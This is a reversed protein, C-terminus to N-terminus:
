RWTVDIMRRPKREAAAIQAFTRLSLALRRHTATRRRIDDVPRKNLGNIAALSSLLWHEAWCFSVLEACMRRAPSANENALDSIILQTKAFLANAQDPTNAFEQVAISLRAMRAIDFAFEQATWQPHDRVLRKLTDIATEDGRRISKVLARFQKRFQGRGIPDSNVLAPIMRKRWPHRDTRRFGLGELAIALLTQASQGRQREDHYLREQKERWERLILRDRQREEAHIQALAM